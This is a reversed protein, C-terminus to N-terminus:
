ESFSKSIEDVALSFIVYANSVKQGNGLDGYWDLLWASRVLNRIAIRASNRSSESLGDARENLSLGLEKAQLAPIFIESFAGRKILDQLELNRMKISSVIETTLSPIIPRIREALPIFLLVKASDDNNSKFDVSHEAFIFDFREEPFNSGFSVKAILEAPMPLDSVSAELFNGDSSPRLDVTRVDFIEDIVEDYSEELVVRGAWMKVDVPERYNNTVYLRFVGKAPYVGEVHHFGDPAMFVIGGHHSSHDMHADPASDIVGCTLMESGHYPNRIPGDRQIWNSGGRYMPCYARSFGKLLQMTSFHESLEKFNSRMIEIDDANVASDVLPKVEPEVLFMLSELAVKADNYNDAALAEQVVVYSALQAALSVPNSSSEINLIERKKQPEESRVEFPVKSICSSLVAVSLLGYFFQVKIRRV